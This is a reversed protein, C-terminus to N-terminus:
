EVSNLKGQRFHELAQKVTSIDNTFRHMKINAARFTSAANPGFDGSVVADAKQDIVFQAAAIGAGGSQIAGPNSFAQWYNTDTDIRILWLSRGFRADVPSDIEQDQASFVVIM